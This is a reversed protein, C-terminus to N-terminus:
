LIKLEKLVGSLTKKNEESMPCMPLRYIEEVFGKMAMAAKIPIPNTELFIAKFLPLLDYHLRRAREWEGQLAAQTLDKMREPVINSAVSIVGTGGLAMLPYTLNDDGSLVNFNKPKKAILDMMQPISGSAEKVAVINKHEALKLMVPNEINKGARGPINYVVMPLDVQDAIATFHRFFGEGTPKNYYPAVQLSATAGIEKAKATMHIAKDTCNSGTGAIVPVRANAQEVVIRIVRETEEPDLTPSEGTTGVPVLGDIGQEIQFDVLKRLAKEDIKGERTFPTILATFAGQFM